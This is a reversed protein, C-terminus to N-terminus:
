RAKERQFGRTALEKDNAGDFARCDTLQLLMRTRYHLTAFIDYVSIATIVREFSDFKQIESGAGYSGREIIATSKEM